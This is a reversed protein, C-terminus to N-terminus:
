NYMLRKYEIIIICTPVTYSGVEALTVQHKSFTKLAFMNVCASCATIRSLKGDAFIDFLMTYLRTEIEPIIKELEAYRCELLADLSWIRHKMMLPSFDM